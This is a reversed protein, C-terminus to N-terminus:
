IDPFEVGSTSKNSESRKDENMNSSVKELEKFINLIKSIKSQSIKIKRINKGAISKPTEFVISRNKPQVNADRGSISTNSSGRYILKKRNNYDLYPKVSLTVQKNISKTSSSDAQIRIFQKYMLKIDAEKPNKDISGQM